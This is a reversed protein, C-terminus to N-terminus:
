IQPAVAARGARPRCSTRWLCAALAEEGVHKTLLDAPNETGAVKVIRLYGAHVREQIWLLRTDLHRIKGLGRRRVIGLAASSDLHIRLKCKHGFDRSLAQVVLGEAAGRVAAVLEAETSSLTVKARTTCWTKLVHAGRMM